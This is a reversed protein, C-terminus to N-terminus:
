YISRTLRKDTTMCVACLQEPRGKGPPHALVAGEPTGCHVAQAVERPLGPGRTIQRRRM